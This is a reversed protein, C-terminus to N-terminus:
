HRVGWSKLFDQTKHSTYQTGGDTTLEEPIGFTVFTERLRKILGDAGHESRFVMPWGSYRDVIVVYDTNQYNFYDSCIM